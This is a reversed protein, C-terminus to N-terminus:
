ARNRALEALQRQLNAIKQQMDDASPSGAVAAMTVSRVHPMPTEVAVAVPTSKPAPLTTIGTIKVEVPASIAAVTDDDESPANEHATSTTDAADLAPNFQSFMEVVRGFYSMNRRNVEDMASTFPFVGGFAGTFYERVRDQNSVFSQMSQELYKPVLSQMNNGYYGIIHRLFSIPLLNQQSSNGEEEAIIQILITRTIDEGTRADYVNFQENQKVMKALDSLTVYSSTAMNYLRRNAYKKITVAEAVVSPNSENM